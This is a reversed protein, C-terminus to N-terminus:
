YEEPVIIKNHTNSWLVNQHETPLFYVSLFFISFIMAFFSSNTAHLSSSYFYGYSMFKVKIQFSFICKIFLFLYVFCVDYMMPKGFRLTWRWFCLLLIDITYSFLFFFCFDFYLFYVLFILKRSSFNNGIEFRYTMCWKQIIFYSFRFAKANKVFISYVIRKM